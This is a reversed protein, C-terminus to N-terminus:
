NINCKCWYFVLSIVVMDPLEPNQVKSGYRMNRWTFFKFVTNEKFQAGGADLNFNAFCHCMHLSAREFARNETVLQHSLFLTCCAGLFGEASLRLDPLAFSSFKNM